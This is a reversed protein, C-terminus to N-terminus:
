YTIYFTRSRLGELWPVRTQILLLMSICKNTQTLLGNVGTWTVGDIVMKKLLTNVRSHNLISSMQLSTLHTNWLDVTKLMNVARALLYPDVAALCSSRISLNMLNSKKSDGCAATFIANVQNTTLQTELLSVTEINNVASALLDANVTHLHVGRIEFSKLRTDNSMVTFIEHLQKTTLQPDWLKLTELKNVAQALLVSDM